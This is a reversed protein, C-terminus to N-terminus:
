FVKVPFSIVKLKQNPKKKKRKIELSSKLCQFDSTILSSLCTLDKGATKQAAATLAPSQESQLCLLLYNLHQQQKGAQCINFPKVEHSVDSIDCYSDHM